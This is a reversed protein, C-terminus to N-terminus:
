WRGCHESGQCKGGDKPCKPVCKGKIVKPWPMMNPKGDCKWGSDGRNQYRNLIKCDSDEDCILTCLRFLM